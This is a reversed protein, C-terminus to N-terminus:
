HIEEFKGSNRIAYLKGNEQKLSKIENGESLKKIIDNKWKIIDNIVQDWAKISVVAIDWPADGVSGIDANNSLIMGLIDEDSGETQLIKEVDKKAKQTTADLDVEKITYEEEPLNKFAVLRGLENKLAGKVVKLEEESLNLVIPQEADDLECDPHILKKPDGISKDEFELVIPHDTYDIDKIHYITTVLKCSLKCPCEACNNIKVIKM